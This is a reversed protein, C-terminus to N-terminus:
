GGVRYLKVRTGVSINGSVPDIDIATIEDASNSWLGGGFAGLAGAGTWMNGENLVGRRTAVGQVLRRAFIRSQFFGHSAGSAQTLIIIGSASAPATADDVYNSGTDGNFRMLLDTNSALLVKGIMLYDNDTEGAVTFSHSAVPSTPEFVSLLELSDAQFSQLLAIDAESLGVRDVLEILSSNVNLPNTNWVNQVEYNINAETVISEVLIIKTESPVSQVTFLGQQAGSTIIVKDGATVLLTQFTATADNLSNDSDSLDTTNAINETVIAPDFIVSLPSHFPTNNGTLDAHSLASIENRTALPNSADPPFSPDNQAVRMAESMDASLKTEDAYILDEVKQDSRWMFPRLDTIDATDIVVLGVTEDVKIKAIPVDDPGPEGPTGNPVGVRIAFDQASQDFVILDFRTQSPLVEAFPGIAQAATPTSTKGDGNFGRGASIDVSDDPVSSPEVRWFDFDDITFKFSAELDDVDQITAIPNAGSPTNMAAFAAAQDASVDSLDALGVNSLGVTQLGLNTVDTQDVSTAAAVVTVQALETYTFGDGTPIPLPVPVADPVGELVIHVAPTNTADFKHKTVIRDIRDLTPDAPALVIVGSLDTTEEVRVGESTLLVNTEFDVLTDPDTTSISLILNTGNAIVFFGKYKGEPLIDKWRRNLIEGSRKEQFKFTVNQSM